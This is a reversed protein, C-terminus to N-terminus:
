RICIAAPSHTVVQQLLMTGIGKAMRLSFSTSGPAQSQVQRLIIQVSKEFDVVTVLLAIILYHLVLWIFPGLAKRMSLSRRIGYVIVVFGILGFLNSLILVAPTKYGANEEVNTHNKGVSPIESLNFHNLTMNQLFASSLNAISQDLMKSVFLM